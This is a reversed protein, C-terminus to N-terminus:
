TPLAAFQQYHWAFIWASNFFSSAIFLGDISRLRENNRQAPLAQYIAYGALALYILGWISFVYGAPVFYVDFSDSIQGTNLGNIPVINALANITITAGLAIIVLAQRLANNKM